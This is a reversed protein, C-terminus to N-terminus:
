RKDHWLECLTSHLLFIRFIVISPPCWQVLSTASKTKPWLDPSWYTSICPNSIKCQTFHQHQNQMKASPFATLKRHCSSCTQTQQRSQLRTLNTSDSM